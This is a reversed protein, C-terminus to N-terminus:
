KKPKDELYLLLMYEAQKGITRKEKDARKTVEDWVSKCPDVIRIEKRNKM